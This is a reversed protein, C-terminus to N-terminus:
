GSPWAPPPPSDAEIGAAERGPAGTRVETQTVTSLLLKMSTVPQRLDHSAVALLQTKARVASELDRSRSELHSSLEAVRLRALIADDIAHCAIRSIYWAVVALVLLAMGIQLDAAPAPYDSRCCRDARFDPYRGGAAVASKRSPGRRHGCLRCDRRRHIDAGGSRLVQANRVRDIGVLVTILLALLIVRRRLGPLRLDHIPLGELRRAVLALALHLLGLGGLITVVFIKDAHDLILLGGFAVFGAQLPVATRVMQAHLLGGGGAAVRTDFPGRM